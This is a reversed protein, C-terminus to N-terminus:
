DVLDLEVDLNEEVSDQLTTVVDMMDGMFDEDSFTRLMTAMLNNLDPLGNEQEPIDEFTEMKKSLKEGARELSSMVDEDQVVKLLGNMLGNFDPMEDIIDEIEAETPLKLDSLSKKKTLDHANAMVPTVLFSLTVFASSLLRM